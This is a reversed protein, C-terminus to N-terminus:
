QEIPRLEQRQCRGLQRGENPAEANQACVGPLGRVSDERLPRLCQRVVEEHVQEIHTGLPLWARVGLSDVFSSVPLRVFEFPRACAGVQDETRMRLQPRQRLNIGARIRLLLEYFVEHGGPVLHHIEVAELERGSIGYLSTTANTCVQIYRESRRLRRLQM